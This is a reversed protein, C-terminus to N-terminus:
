EAKKFIDDDIRNRLYFFLATIQAIANALLVGLIEMGLSLLVLSLVLNISLSVLCIILVRSEKNHKFLYFIHLVYGYSPWGIFFAISLELWSLKIEFFHWLVLGISIVAMVNLFLGIGLMRKKIGVLSVAKMRYINKLYPLVLITAISQTFVFFGSIIQYDGLLADEHFFGFLYLDIKSQLFGACGMLFFPLSLVLVAANLKLKKLKFFPLYIISYILAKLCQHLAYYWVLDSVTLVTDSRMVLYVLVSLGLIETLIVKGFDRQYTYVPIFANNFFGAVLWLSFPAFTGEDFVFPIIAISILLLPLRIILHQQWNQVIQGPNESFARALFDKSGWNSFLSALYFFLLYDVFGGWLERSQFRVVLYSFVIFILPTILTRIGNLFVPLFRRVAKERYRAGSKNSGQIQGEM